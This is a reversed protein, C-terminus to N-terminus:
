SNSSKSADSPLSIWNDDTNSSNANPMPTSNDDASPYKQWDTSSNNSFNGSITVTASSTNQGPNWPQEYVFSVTTIQPADYFRPDVSFTFIANGGSGVLKTTPASYRYNQLSLLDHSYSQVFWQYGTTANAPLTIDVTQQQDNLRINQNINNDAFSMTSAGALILSFILKKM